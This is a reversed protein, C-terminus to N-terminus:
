SPPSHARAKTYPKHKQTLFFLWIAFYCAKPTAPGLSGAEIEAEEPRIKKEEEEEEEEEEEDEALGRRGAAPRRRAAARATAAPRRRAAARATAAVAARM